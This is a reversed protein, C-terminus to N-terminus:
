TTTAVGAPAPAVNGVHWPKGYISVVALLTVSVSSALTFRWLRRTHPALMASSEKSRTLRDSSRLLGSPGPFTARGCWSFKSTHSSDLYRAFVRLDCKDRLPGRAAADARGASPLSRAGGPLAAGM